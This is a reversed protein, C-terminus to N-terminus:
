IDIPFAVPLDETIQESPIFNEDMADLINGAVPETINEQLSEELSESVVETQQDAEPVAVETEAAYVGVSSFVVLAMFKQYHTM